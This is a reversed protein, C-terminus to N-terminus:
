DTDQNAGSSNISGGSRDWFSAPAESKEEEQKAKVCASGFTRAKGGFCCPHHWHPLGFGGFAVHGGFAHRVDPRARGVRQGQGMNPRSRAYASLHLSLEDIMCVTSLSSVLATLRKTPCMPSRAKGVSRESIATSKDPFRRPNNFSATGFKDRTASMM